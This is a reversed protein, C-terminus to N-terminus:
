REVEVLTHAHHSDDIRDLAHPGGLLDLFGSDDYRVRALWAADNDGLILIAPMDDPLGVLAARLEGVTLANAM